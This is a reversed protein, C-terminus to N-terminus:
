VAVTAKIHDDAEYGVLEFDEFVFDFLNNVAPNIKLQPLAKPHRSLQLETQEFHNSYLHADGL